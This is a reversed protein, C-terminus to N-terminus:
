GRCARGPAPGRPWPRWAASRRASRLALPFRREEEDIVPEFAVGRRGDLRNDLFDLRSSSSESTEAFTRSERHQWRASRAGAGRGGGRRSRRQDRHLLDPVAALMVREGVQGPPPAPPVAREALGVRVDTAVALQAHEFRGVAPPPFRDRQDGLLPDVEAVRLQRHSRVVPQHDDGASRDVAARRRELPSLRPDGEGLVAPFPGRRLPHEGLAFPQPPDGPVVAPGIAHRVVRRGSVVAAFAAASVPLAPAPGASQFSFSKTLSSPRFYM